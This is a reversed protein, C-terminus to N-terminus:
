LCRVAVCLVWYYTKYCISKLGWPFISLLHTNPYRRPHRKFCNASAETNINESQKVVKRENVWANYIFLSIGTNLVWVSLIVRPFSFSSIQKYTDHVLDCSQLHIKLQEWSLNLCLLHDMISFLSLYESMHSNHLSFCTQISIHYM